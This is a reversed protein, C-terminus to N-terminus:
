RPQNLPFAHFFRSQIGSDPTCTKGSMIRPLIGALKLRWINVWLHLLWTKYEVQAAHSAGERPVQIRQASPTLVETWCSGFAFDRFVKMCSQCIYIYVHVSFTHIYTHIYAHMCAHMCAYSTYVYAYVRSIPYLTFCYTLMAYRPDIAHQVHHFASIELRTKLHIGRRKCTAM